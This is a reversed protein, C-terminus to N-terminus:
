IYIYINYIYISNIIDQLNVTSLYKTLTAELIPLAAVHPWRTGPVPGVIVGTRRHGLHPTMNEASVAPDESCFVVTEHVSFFFGKQSRHINPLNAVTCICVYVLKSYKPDSFLPWRWQWVWRSPKGQPNQFRSSPWKHGLDLQMAPQCHSYIITNERPM